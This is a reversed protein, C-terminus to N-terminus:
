APVLVRIAKDNVTVTSPLAGAIDGDAQLAESGGDVLSIRASRAKVTKMFPLRAALGLPLAFLMLLFTASSATQVLVVDMEAADIRADRALIYSGAYHRGLTLVASGAEHVVGDLELRYRRRGFRRLERLMSLVYALKGIKKKLAADVGQM